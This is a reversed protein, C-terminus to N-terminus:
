RLGLRRRWWWEGGLALVGLLYPWWRTRFPARTGSPTAAGGHAALTAERPLWEDSYEEVAVTGRGGDALRYRWVGPELWLEARGAGDFRLTDIVTLSDGELAV